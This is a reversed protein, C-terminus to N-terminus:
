VMCRLKTEVEEKENRVEAVQNRVEREVRELQASMLQNMKRLHAVHAETPPQTADVLTPPVSSVLSSSALFASPNSILTNISSVTEAYKARQFPFSLSLQKYSSRWHWNIGSTLRRWDQGWARELEMKKAIYRVKSSLLELKLSKSWPFLASSLSSVLSFDKECESAWYCHQFFHVDCATGRVMEALDHNIKFAEHQLQEKQEAASKIAKDLHTM